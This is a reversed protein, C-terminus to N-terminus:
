RVAGCRCEAECSRASALRAVNPLGDCMVKRVNKEGNLGRREWIPVEQVSKMSAEAKKGKETSRAGAARCKFCAGVSKRTFVHHVDM